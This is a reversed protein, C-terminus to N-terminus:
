VDLCWLELRGEPKGKGFARATELALDWDSADLLSVKEDDEDRFKLAIASRSVGFKAAVKDVFSQFSIDPALTM